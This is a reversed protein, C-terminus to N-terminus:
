SWGLDSWWGKESPAPVAVMRLFDQQQQQQQEHGFLEFGAFFEQIEMWNRAAWWMVAGILSVGSAVQMIKYGHRKFSESFALVGLPDIIAIEGGLRGRAPRATANPAGSTTTLAKEHPSSSTPSSSARSPSRHQFPLYRRSENHLSRQLDQAWKALRLQRLPLEAPESPNAAAGSDDSTSPSSSGFDRHRVLDKCPESALDALPSSQNRIVLGLNQQRWLLFKTASLHRLRAINQPELLQAVFVDLESPVLPQLYTSSMLLSADMAELDSSTASSVAYPEEPSTLHSVPNESVATEAHYACSEIPLSASLDRIQKKREALEELSLTDARAILPIVSTWKCLYQLLEHRANEAETNVLGESSVQAPELLYLVVDIQSGGEGSMLNLLEIDNLRDPNATRILSSKFYQSIQSIHEITDLAPTDVFTLNRELMSDSGISKPHVLMRRSEFDTWWLPYPRTSAGIEAIDTARGEVRTGSIPDLHVINECTRCISQILRTKGVGKDGVIMIKIRGMQKGTPTFPRRAPMSISPMVLQPMRDESEGAPEEEEEGSSSHVAQSGNDSAISAEEDSLRFSKPSGSRPTLPLRQPSLKLPTLPQSLSMSTTSTSNRRLNTRYPSDASRLSEPSGQSNHESSIIRQGTALIKPHVPNGAKRKKRGLTATTDEAGAEVSVDSVNSNTRSLSHETPHDSAARITDELSQVGYSSNDSMNYGLSTGRVPQTDALDRSVKRGRQSSKEVEKESRLFFTTPGSSGISPAAAASKKAKLTNYQFDQAASM